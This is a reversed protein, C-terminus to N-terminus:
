FSLDPHQNQVEWIIQELQGGVGTACASFGHHTAGMYLTLVGTEPHPMLEVFYHPGFRLYVRTVKGNDDREVQPEDIGENM